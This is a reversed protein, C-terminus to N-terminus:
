DAHFRMEIEAVVCLSYKPAVPWQWPFDAGGEQKIGQRCSTGIHDGKNELRRIVPLLGQAFEESARRNEMALAKGNKGLVTGRSRAASLAAKTNESIRQRQEEAVAALIHITLRNAHPNDTVIIEVNSKVIGAIQEVDRGLRDLKAVMLTAKAQRCLSLAHYLSNRYKRTSRVEIVEQVLEFGNAQCYGTVASQQADLGLGSKGHRSTSVRYYAIAQKM